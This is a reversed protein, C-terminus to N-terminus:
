ELSYHLKNYQSSKRWNKKKTISFYETETIFKYDTNPNNSIDRRINERRMGIEKSLKSISSYVTNTSIKLIRKSRNNRNLFCEKSKKTKSIKSKWEETFDRNKMINSMYKRRTDTCKINRQLMTERRKIKTEELHIHNFAGDGGDTMNVLIGTKLDIRGYLNIFYKEITKIFELDDSHGLIEIVYGHKNVIKNWLNNRGDLAVARKYCMKFSTRNYFTGIGIYFPFNNDLRIHKYLYYKGFELLM